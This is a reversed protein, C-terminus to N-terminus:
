FPNDDAGQVPALLTRGDLPSKLLYLDSCCVLTQIFFGPFYLFVSFHFRKLHSPPFFQSCFDKKRWTQDTKGSLDGNALPPPIPQSHHCPPLLFLTFTGIRRRKWGGLTGGGRGWALAAMGGGLQQQQRFFRGLSFFLPSRHVPQLFPSTSHHSIRLAM